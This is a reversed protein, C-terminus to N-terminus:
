VHSRGRVFSGELHVCSQPVPPHRMMVIPLYQSQTGSLAHTTGPLAHWQWHTAGKWDHNHVGFQLSGGAFWRVGEESM